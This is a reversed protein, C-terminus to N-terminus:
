VLWFCLADVTVTVSDRTLTTEATFDSVRIRLDVISAIWDIVPLVFFIGPGSVRHFKGLRLIIAREWEDTKRVSLVILLGALAFLATIWYGGPGLRPFGSLVRVACGALAFVVVIVMRLVIIRALSRQTVTASNTVLTKKTQGSGSINM